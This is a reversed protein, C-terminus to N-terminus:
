LKSQRKKFRPDLEDTLQFKEAIENLVDDEAGNNELSEFSDYNDLIEEGKEIDRVAITIVEEEDDRYESLVNPSLSHNFYKGNDASFCYLKSKKSRWCYTCIYIQLLDPFSLIQERTFKQDFGPTFRWIETGKPIYQDAFLGVGHIQSEKIKTKVLLM